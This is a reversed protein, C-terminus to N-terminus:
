VASESGTLCSTLPVAISGGKANRAEANGWHPWPMRVGNYQSLEAEIQKGQCVEAVNLDLKV